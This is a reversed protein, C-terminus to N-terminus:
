KTQDQEYKEMEALVGVEYMAMDAYCLEFNEADGQRDLEVLRSMYDLMTTIGDIVKSVDCGFVPKNPMGHDRFNEVAMSLVTVMTPTLQMTLERNPKKQMEM